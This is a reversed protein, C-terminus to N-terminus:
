FRISGREGQIPKGSRQGRSNIRNKAGVPGAFGRKHVNEGAIEACVASDNGIGPIVSFGFIYQVHSPPEALLQPKHRLVGAHIRIKRDMAKQPINGSQLINTGTLLAPFSLLDDGPLDLRYQMRNVQIVDAVPFDAGKGASHLLPQSQRLGNQPIGFYQYQIFRSGSQVRLLPNQDAIINRFNGQIFNHEDGRM